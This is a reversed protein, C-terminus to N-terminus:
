NSSRLSYSNECHYPGGLSWGSCLKLKRLTYLAEQDFLDYLLDLHQRDESPASSLRSALNLVRSVPSVLPPPLSRKRAPRESNSPQAPKAPSRSIETASIERSAFQGRAAVAVSPLRPSALTRASTHAPNLRVATTTTSTPRNFRLQLFAPRTSKLQALELLLLHPWLLSELYKLLCTANANMSRFRLLRVRTAASLDAVGPMKFNLKYVLM